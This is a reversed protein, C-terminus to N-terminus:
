KLKIQLIIDGEHHCTPCLRGQRTLKLKQGDRTNPPITVSLTKGEPLKFSVRGGKKAKEQSIRLNIRIDAKVSGGEAEAGYEEPSYYEYMAGHPSQSQTYGRPAGSSGSFLDEFIDNFGSYRSRSTRPGKRGSFQKLLEEFDFGQSGAFDQASPGGRRLTEDYEARRKPDSLAYYAASIEKFKAEAAKDNPNKDPHYQHALKRYVKKIEDPTSTEQVGLIEYYTKKM